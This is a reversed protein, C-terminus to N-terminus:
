KKREDTLGAIVRIEGPEITPLALLVDGALARTAEKGQREPRLVLIAIRRRVMNQEPKMDDDLTILVDFGAAEARSLLASNKTGRWRM